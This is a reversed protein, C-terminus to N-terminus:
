KGSQTQIAALASRALSVLDVVGEVEVDEMGAAGDIWRIGFARSADYQRTLDEFLVRALDEPTM